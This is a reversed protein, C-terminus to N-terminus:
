QMIVVVHVRPCVTIVVMGGCKSHLMSKSQVDCCTKRSDFDTFVIAFILIELCHGRYLQCSSLYVCLYGRYLQCSSLYVCMCVPINWQKMVCRCLENFNIQSGFMKIIMLTLILIGSIWIIQMQHTTSSKSSFMVNVPRRLHIRTM